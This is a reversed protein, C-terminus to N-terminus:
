KIEPETNPTLPLFIFSIQARSRMRNAARSLSSILSEQDATRTSFSYGEEKECSLFSCYFIFNWTSIHTRYHAHNKRM